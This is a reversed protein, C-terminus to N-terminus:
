GQGRAELSTIATRLADGIPVKAGSRYDVMVVVSDGEAALADQGLSRVRYKMVFSTNGLSAITCDVKVRDPYTLPRRYDLTARALIPGVGTDKMRSLMGTAEFYAIRASEFWRLYAVNNVHQFADMEGWAVPLEISVPWRELPAPPTMSSPRYVVQEQLPVM